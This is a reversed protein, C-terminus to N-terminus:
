EEFCNYTTLVTKGIEYLLNEAKIRLDLPAKLLRTGDDFTRRNQAPSLINSAEFTFCGNYGIDLLGQMLSDVNLSGFFPAMHKDDDGPNDQVHLAMVRSGLIKLEEHQPMDQLNGHGTDWVAKLLPHNVYDIFECLDSANDIWYTNEAFMKNFNEALIYINHKEAAELVPAFFEKNKQYTQEKSLFHAYGTHVVLTKIGLRACSEVCKLTDNLLPTTDGEFMFMSFPAHSQVLEVGLEDAKKLVKELHNADDSYIGTGNRHDVCFNYDIYKFGAKAIYEMAETVHPTYASFDGTTTALKM